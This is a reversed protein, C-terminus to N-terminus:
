VQLDTQREGWGRVNVPILHQQMVASYFMTKHKEKKKLVALTSM